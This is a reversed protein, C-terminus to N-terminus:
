VVTRKKLRKKINKESKAEGYLVGFELWLRQRVADYYSDDFTKYESKEPFLVTYAQIANEVFKDYIDHSLNIFIRDTQLRTLKKM